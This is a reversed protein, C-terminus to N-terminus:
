RALVEWVHKVKLFDEFTYTSQRNEYTGDKGLRVVTPIVIADRPILGSERAAYEYAAVQLLHSEYIGKSTKFDILYYSGSIGKIIADLTGAFRHELSFVPSEITLVEAWDPKAAEYWNLLGEVYPLIEAAIEGELPPKGNKLLAEAVDHVDTGRTGAKKLVNSPTSLRGERGLRKFEEYRPEIEPPTLVADDLGGYELSAQVGLKYGWWDLGDKPLAKLITSVSPLKIRPGKAKGESTLLSVEYYPSDGVMRAM